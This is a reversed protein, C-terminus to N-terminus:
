SSFHWTVPIIPNKEYLATPARNQVCTIIHTNHTGLAHPVRHHRLLANLGRSNRTTTLWWMLAPLGVQTRELVTLTREESGLGRENLGLHKKHAQKTQNKFCLGLQTSSVIAASRSDM